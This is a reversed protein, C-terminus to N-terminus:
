PSVIGCLSLSCVAEQLKLVASFHECSCPILRRCSTSCKCMTAGRTASPSGDKCSASTKIGIFWGCGGSHVKFHQVDNQLFCVIHLVGAFERAPHMGAPVVRVHGHQESTHCRSTSGRSRLALALLRKRCPATANHPQLTAGFCKVIHQMRCRRLQELRPLSLQLSCHQHHELWTSCKLTAGYQLDNRGGCEGWCCIHGQSCASSPHSCRSCDKAGPQM